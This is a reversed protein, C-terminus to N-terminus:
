TTTAAAYGGSDDRPVRERTLSADTAEMSQRGRSAVGAGYPRDGGMGSRVGSGARDIDADELLPLM